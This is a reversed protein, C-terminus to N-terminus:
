GGTENTTSLIKESSGKLYKDLFAGIQGYGEIENEKKRFGHGEDEFIIYKVPVGNAKVSEVIEDSEVQLVRIDNAGQLVMLPKTVNHAHFLPSIQYLRLSDESYPDGIEKYLAKRQSEWHAPISRITRIWNTVGFINVGVDFAEPEFTLAAMVMYGGYSGGIIGVKEMDVVGTSALYDKGAICDKLDEDGHNLDDMHYFTKGYGDSGRNNVALIAYGQNVLFQILSFYSLRSQGGPGGHVWVLGPVKYEPSAVKPQYYIAPIELGDYSSYRVVTGEVLHDPNIEPNLTNTLKILEGSDFNYMYLNSPSTSTSVTLRALKESKSINVSAISGGEIKPLEIEQGSNVEFIRVRTRADENIGIVRYKENWSQYVYWVDWSDSYVNEVDGTELNIKALYTFEQDKNTLYYLFKSDLSFFQPQYQVDGEHESIDTMEGTDKDYLYMKNDANTIQKVLAFYRKNPSISSVDLGEENEYIMEGLPIEDNMAAVELEYVDMYRPDRKNSSYFMSQQDRSWGWFLNRVTDEPTLSKSIGNNMMYIKFQENGGEDFLYIFRDDEPFYSVGFYSEEQSNTLATSEGTEIDVEYANYIGSENSNVLLKSEDASFSGGSININEYFQEISYQDIEPSEPTSNCAVLLLFSIPIALKM